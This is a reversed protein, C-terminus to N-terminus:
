AENNEGGQEHRMVRMVTNAMQGVFNQLAKQEHTLKEYEPNESGVIGPEFELGVNLNEGEQTVTFVLRQTNAELLARMEDDAKAAAIGDAAPNTPKSKTM